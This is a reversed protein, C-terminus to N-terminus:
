IKKSEPTIHRSRRLMRRLNGPNEIWAIAADYEPFAKEMRKFEKPHISKRGFSNL